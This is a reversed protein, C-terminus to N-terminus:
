ANSHNTVNLIVEKNNKWALFAERNNADAYFTFANNLVREFMIREKARESDFLTDLKDGIGGTM